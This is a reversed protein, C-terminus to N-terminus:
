VSLLFPLLFSATPNATILPTQPSKSLVCMAILITANPPVDTCGFFPVTIYNAITLAQVANGGPGIFVLLTWMRLFAPIPGYADLIFTFEGGSKSCSTILEVYCLAGAMSILGCLTWLVMAWGVSGNVGLLM